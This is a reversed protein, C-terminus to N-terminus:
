HGVQDDAYVRGKSGLYFIGRFGDRWAGLWPRMANLAELTVRGVRARNGGAHNEDLVIPNFKTIMKRATESAGRRQQKHPRRHFKSAPTATPITSAVRRLPDSQPPPRQPGSRHLMGGHEPWDLGLGPPRSSAALRSLGQASACPRPPKGRRFAGKRGPTPGHPGVSSALARDAAYDAL